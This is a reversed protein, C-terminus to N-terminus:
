ITYRPTLYVRVNAMFGSFRVRRSGSISCAGKLFGSQPDRAAPMLRLM